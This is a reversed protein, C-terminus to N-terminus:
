YRDRDLEVYKNFLDLCETRNVESMHNRVFEETDQFDLDRFGIKETDELRCGYYVKDINAWRIAGLCMPCPYATTYLECRSLDHTGLIKCAARIANMEGHCTPDNDRLVTNHAVSIVKDGKVIVSGFPGGDNDMIGQLASLIASNMHQKNNM